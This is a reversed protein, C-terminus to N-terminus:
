THYTQHTCTHRKRMEYKWWGMSEEEGGVMRRCINMKM